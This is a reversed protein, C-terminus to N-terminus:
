EEKQRPHPCIRHIHLGARCFVFRGSFGLYHATGGLLAAAAMAILFHGVCGVAFDRFAM